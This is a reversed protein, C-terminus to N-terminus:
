LINALRKSEMEGIINDIKIIHLLSDLKENRRQDKLGAEYGKKYMTILASKDWFNVKVVKEVKGLKEIIDNKFWERNIRLKRFIFHLNSEEARGGDMMKVVRLDEYHATQLASLRKYTTNKNLSYGIKVPGNDGAQIFYIM